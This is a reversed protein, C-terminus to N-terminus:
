RKPNYFCGNQIFFLAQHIANTRQMIFTHTYPVALFDKMGNIKAREISVKGDNAGPILLSLLPNISKYGSIIGADFNISELQSPISHSDTGIENGAPGNLLSYLALHGLKDVIESGQNPPSLMVTKGLNHISHSSLYFRLLIGGLSHTLFHIRNYNKSECANIVPQIHETVLRNIAKKRSPYNINIIAYGYSSLISSAKKMSRSTRALGHMLIICETNAEIHKLKRPLNEM